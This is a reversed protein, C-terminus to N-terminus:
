TVEAITWDESEPIKEYDFRGAKVAAVYADLEPETYYLKHDVWPTVPCFLVTYDGKPGYDTEFANVKAFVPIDQKIKTVHDQWQFPTFTITPGERDRSDRMVVNEGMRTVEVCNGSPNSATLWIEQLTM